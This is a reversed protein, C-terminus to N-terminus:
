GFYKCRDASPRGPQFWCFFTVGDDIYKLIEKAAVMKESGLLDDTGFLDVSQFVGRWGNAYRLFGAYKKDVGTEFHREVSRISSEEAAVGPLYFPFLGASDVEALAQKVIVLKVIEEPWNM